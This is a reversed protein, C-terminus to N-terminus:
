LVEAWFFGTLSSRLATAKNKAATQKNVATRGPDLTRSPLSLIASDAVM